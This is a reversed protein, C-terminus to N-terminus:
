IILGDALKKINHIIYVALKGFLSSKIVGEKFGVHYVHKIYVLSLYILLYLVFTVPIGIVYFYWNADHIIEIYNSGYNYSNMIVFNILLFVVLFFGIWILLKLELYIKNYIKIIAAQRQSSYAVSFTLITLILISIGGIV